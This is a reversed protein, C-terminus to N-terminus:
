RTFLFGKVYALMGAAGAAVSLLFGGARWLFLGAKGAGQVQTKMTVFESVTPSMPSTLAELPELRVLVKEMMRDQAELKEYMRRRSDASDRKEESIARDISDLRSTLLTVLNSEM